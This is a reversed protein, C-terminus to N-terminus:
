RNKKQDFSFVIGGSCNFGFVPNQNWRQYSQDFLNNFQTWLQLRHTVQFTLGANLDAAGKSRAVKGNVDLFPAGRFMVLESQLWLEHTLSVRLSTQWELPLLGWAASQIRPEFFHNLLLQTSLSFQEAHTYAMRANLQLQNLREEYLVLFASSPRHSADNLMLPQDETTIFQARLDYSLRPDFQGKVGLYRETIRSTRLASPSWIWPNLIALDRYSNQNWRANWGAMVIAQKGPVSYSIALQPLVAFREQNWTPSVGAQVQFSSQQYRISPTIAFLTNAILTDSSGFPLRSSRQHQYRLAQLSFLTQVWWSQGIQKQLPAQVQVGTETNKKNDFFHYVRALPSFSISSAVPATSRLQVQASLLSFQQRLSDASFTSMAIATDYFLNNNIQENRYELSTSLHLPARKLQTYGNAKVEGVRYFRMDRADPHETLSLYRGSLSLGKNVGDGRDIGARVYPNRLNGYGVKVFSRNIFPRATDIGYALPQVARISHDLSLQRQPITYPLVSRSSDAALASASFNIKSAQKLTPRFSSVITVGASAVTDTQAFLSHTVVVTLLLGWGIKTHIM